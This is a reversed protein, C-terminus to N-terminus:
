INENSPTAFSLGNRSRFSLVIGLINMQYSAEHSMTAGNKLNTNQNPIGCYQPLIRM